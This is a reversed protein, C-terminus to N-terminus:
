NVRQLLTFYLKKLLYIYRATFTYLLIKKLFFIMRNTTGFIYYEYRIIILEFQRPEDDVLQQVQAKLKRDPHSSGGVKRDGYM